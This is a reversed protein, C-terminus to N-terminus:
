HLPLEGGTLAPLNMFFRHFEAPAKEYLPQVTTRFRGFKYGVAVSKSPSLNLLWPLSHTLFFEFDLPVGGKQSPM